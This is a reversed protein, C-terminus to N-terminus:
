VWAMNRIRSYFSWTEWDGAEMTADLVFSKNNAKLFDSQKRLEAFQYIVYDPKVGDMEKRGQNSSFFVTKMGLRRAGFIDRYMENGVFIVAKPELRLGLLAAEFLREDPKRFGFDGSIIVPKFYSEVGVARMEPVAWVSQADSVAALRFRYLLEDLVTKVGPYFPLRGTISRFTNEREPLHCCYEWLFHGISPEGDFPNGTCRFFFHKLEGCLRGLDFVRDAWKMRELDIAMVDRGIGFLLNSPTADGHVLVGRDEWMFSRSRWAERLYWLEDSHESSLGRREILFRVLRGMYQYSEDFNVPYDGATRNHLAALFHALASLKQYLRNYNGLCVADNLIRSLSDAEIHELVMLSDIAPNFGYPKVV